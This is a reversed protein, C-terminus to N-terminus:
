NDRASKIRTMLLRDKYFDKIVNICDKKMLDFDKEKKPYDYDKLCVRFLGTDQDREEEEKTTTHRAIKYYIIYKILPRV